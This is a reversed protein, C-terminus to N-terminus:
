DPPATAKEALLEDIAARIERMKGWGAGEWTRRIKWERDILVTTPVSWLPGFSRWVAEDGLALPYATGYRRGFAAVDAASGSQLAVGLLQVGKGAYEAHLSNYDDVEGICPGCWTAWFELVVIDGRLRETDFRSGDLAVVDIGGAAPYDPVEGGILTALRREDVLGFAATLVVSTLAAAAILHASRMPTHQSSLHHPPM